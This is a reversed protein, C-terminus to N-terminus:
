PVYTGSLEVLEHIGLAPLCHLLDEALVFLTEAKAPGEESTETTDTAFPQQLKTHAFQELEEPTLERPIKEDQM